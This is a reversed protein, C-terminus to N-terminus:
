ASWIASSDRGNSPSSARQVLQFGLAEAKRDAGVLQFPQRFQQEVLEVEAPPEGRDAARVRKPDCLGIRRDQLLGHGPGAPRERGGDHDAVGASVDADGPAGANGHDPDFEAVGIHRNGLQLRVPQDAM